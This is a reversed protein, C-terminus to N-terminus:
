LDISATIFLWSSRTSTTASILCTTQTFPYNRTEPKPNPLSSSVKFSFVQSRWDPEIQLAAVQRGKPDSKSDSNQDEGWFGIRRCIPTSWFQPLAPLQFGTLRGFEFRSNSNRRGSWIKRYHARHARLIVVLVRLSLLNRTLARCRKHFSTSSRIGCRIANGPSSVVSRCAPGTARRFSVTQRRLLFDCTRIRGREGNRLLEHPLANTEYVFPHPNSERRRLWIM